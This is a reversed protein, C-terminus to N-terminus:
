RVGKNENCERSEKTRIWLFACFNAIDLLHDVNELGQSYEKMSKVLLKNLWDIECTKWSDGQKPYHKMYENKMGDIFVGIDKEASPWEGYGYPYGGRSM